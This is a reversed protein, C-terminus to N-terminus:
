RRAHTLVEDISADSGLARRSDAIEGPTVGAHHARITDAPGALGAILYSALTDAPVGATHVQTYDDLTYGLNSCLHILGVDHVGLDWLATVTDAPLHTLALHFTTREAELDDDDHSTM